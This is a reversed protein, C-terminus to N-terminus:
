MVCDMPKMQTQYKECLKELDAIVGPGIPLGETRSIKENNWEIEGPVFVQEVGPAKKSAQIEEIMQDVRSAFIEPNTFAAIDMACFFYGLNQKTEGNAYLNGIHTGYQAGSLMACLIDVIISLGSGKYTGFPLVSGALAETANNTPNGDKDMAWGDPIPINEIEALNIKGRAVVSTAEDLVIPPHKSAPIAFCIPNTGIIPSISGWPAMTPPANTLSIGIMNEPLARMAFYAAIGFHTGNRVSAVAVGTKKAREICLDMAKVGAVSGLGDDADMVFTGGKDEVIKMDPNKNTLGSELRQCYVMVRSVGHSEVGRLDAQILNDAVIAAHEPKAGAGEFIQECLKQTKEPNLYVIGDVKAM